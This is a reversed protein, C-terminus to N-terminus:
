IRVRTRTAERLRDVAEDESGGSPEIRTHQMGYPGGIVFCVARPTDVKEQYESPAIQFTTRQKLVPSGPGMRCVFRGIVGKKTTM